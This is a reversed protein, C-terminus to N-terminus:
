RKSGFGSKSRRSRIIRQGLCGQSALWLRVSHPGLFGGPDLNVLLYQMTLLAHIEDVSFWLGLFEYQPGIQTAGKELRYGGLERDFVIPAHFRDNLYVLDRKLTVWSVGNKEPTRM